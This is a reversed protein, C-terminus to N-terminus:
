SVRASILPLTAYSWSRWITQLELIRNCRDCSSKATPPAGAVLLQLVSSPTSSYWTLTKLLQTSHWSSSQISAVFKVIQSREDSRTRMHRRKYLWKHCYHVVECKFLREGTNINMVTHQDFSGVLFGDGNFCKNHDNALAPLYAHTPLNSHSVATACM